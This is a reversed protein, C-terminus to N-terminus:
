HPLYGKVARVCLAISMLLSYLGNWLLLPECDVLEVLKERVIVSTQVRKLREDIGISDLAPRALFDSRMMAEGVALCVGAVVTARM